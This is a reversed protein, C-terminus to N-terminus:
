LCCYAVQFWPSTRCAIWWTEEIKVKLGKELLDLPFHRERAAKHHLGIIGIMRSEAGALGDTLVHAESILLSFFDDFCTQWKETLICFLTLFLHSLSTQLLTFPSFILLSPQYPSPRLRKPLDPLPFTRPPWQGTAKDHADTAGVDLLLRRRSWNGERHEIAKTAKPQSHWFQKCWRRSRDLISFCQRGKRVLGPIAATQKRWSM